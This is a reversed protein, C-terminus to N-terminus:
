VHRSPGDWTDALEGSGGDGEGVKQQYSSLSFDLPVAHQVAQGHMQM